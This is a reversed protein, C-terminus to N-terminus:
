RAKVNKFIREKKMFKPLSLALAVTIATFLKLDSPNMGIQLALTIIIRYCISGLVASALKLMFNIDKRFLTEGIIISALGCIIAGTGMNIDSYGQSQAVLAGCLSILSNSIALAIIKMINTNVGLACIMVKNNGTARIAYGLETGFFWYLIIILTLCVLSGIIVVSIIKSNSGMNSILNDFMSFVTEKGVLSINAKGMIRINISYLAIM